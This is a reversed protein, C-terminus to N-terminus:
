KKKRRKRVPDPKRDKHKVPKTIMGLMRPKAM